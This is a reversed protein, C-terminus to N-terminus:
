KSLEEIIKKSAMGGGYLMPNFSENAFRKSAQQHAALIKTKDAGVLVNAGVEVLEVWETEDRLTICPVGFFYAEKQLGGSDTMVISSHNILWVM